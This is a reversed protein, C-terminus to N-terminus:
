EDNHEIVFWVVDVGPLDMDKMDPDVRVVWIPKMLGPPLFAETVATHWSIVMQLFGVAHFAQVTPLFITCIAGINKLTSAGIALLTCGTNGISHRSRPHPTM